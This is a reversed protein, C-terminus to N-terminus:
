LLTCANNGCPRVRVIYNGLITYGIQIALVHPLSGLRQNFYRVRIVTFRQLTGGELPETRVLKLSCQISIYVSLGSPALVCTATNAGEQM